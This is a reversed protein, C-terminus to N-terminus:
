PAPFSEPLRSVASPGVVTWLYSLMPVSQMIYGLSIVSRDEREWQWYKEGANSIEKPSGYQRTLDETLKRCIEGPDAAAHNGSEEFVHSLRLWKESEHGSTELTSYVPMFGFVERSDYTRFATNGQRHSESMPRFGADLLARDAEEFTMSANLQVEGTKKQYAASLMLWAGGLAAILLIIALLRFNSLRAQRDAQEPDWRSSEENPKM